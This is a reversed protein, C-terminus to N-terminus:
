SFNSPASKIEEPPCVLRGPPITSFKTNEDIFIRVVKSRVDQSGDKEKVSLGINVVIM